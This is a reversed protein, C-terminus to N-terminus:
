RGSKIADNLYKTYSSFLDLWGLKADNCLHMKRISLVFLTPKKAWVGDKEM